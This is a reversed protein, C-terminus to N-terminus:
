ENPPAKSGLLVFLVVAVSVGLITPLDDQLFNPAALYSVGMYIAWAAAVVSAIGFIVFPSWASEHEVAPESM